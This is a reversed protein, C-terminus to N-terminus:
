LTSHSHSWERQLRETWLIRHTLIRLSQQLTVNIIQQTLYGGRFAGAIRQLSDINLKININEGELEKKVIELAEKYLDKKSLYSGYLQYLTTLHSSDDSQEALIFARKFLEENEEKGIAESIMLKNKLIMLEKDLNNLLFLNKEFINVILILNDKLEKSNFNDFNLNSILSYSDPFNKLEDILLLNNIRSKPTVSKFTVKQNYEFENEMKKLQNSYIAYISKIVELEDKDLKKTLSDPLLVYNVLIIKNFDNIYKIRIRIDEEYVDDLNMKSKLFVDIDNNEDLKQSYSFSFLFLFIFSFLKM